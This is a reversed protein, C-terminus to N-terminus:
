EAPAKIAALRWRAADVSVTREHLWREVKSRVVFRVCSTSKPSRNKLLRDAEKPLLDRVHRPGSRFSYDNQGIVKRKRQTIM